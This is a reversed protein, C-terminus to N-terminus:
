DISSRSFPTLNIVQTKAGSEVNVMTRGLATSTPYVPFFGSLTSSLGLAYLEQGADIEYHNKQGANEVDIPPDSNDGTFSILYHWKNNVAIALANGFCDPILELNPVQPLPLGTPVEGVIPVAYNDSWNYIQSVLAAVIMVLLEYPITIRTVLLRNLLPTFYDKGGILFAAAIFSSTLTVLNAEVVKTVLRYAVVFLYGAGSVRNLKIGMMDDLQSFFVHVAAGTTFGGVLPDCFYASLFDLKLLATTLQILGLTFTLTAAIAVPTISDSLSHDGISTSETSNNSDFYKEMIRENTVGSMLAVVAFSGISAHRFRLIYLNELFKFTKVQPVHMVGTTVGAIIDAALNAKWDYRPLWHLIPLFSTMTHLMSSCSSCPALCQNTFARALGQPNSGLNVFEEEEDEM